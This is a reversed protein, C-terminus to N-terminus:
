QACSPRRLARSSALYTSGGCYVLMRLRPLVVRTMFAGQLRQRVDRNPITVSFHVTLVELCSLAGLLATLHASLFDPSSAPLNQLTIWVLDSGASSLLRSSTPIAVNSPKPHHMFPARFTVTVNDSRNLNRNRTDNHNEPRQVQSRIVLRQLIPNENDMAGVLDRLSVPPRLIFAAYGGANDSCSSRAENIKMLCQTSLM